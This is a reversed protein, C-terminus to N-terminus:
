VDTMGRLTFENQLAGATQNTRLMSDVLPAYWEWRCQARMHAALLSGTGLPKTLILQDGAELPQKGSVHDAPQNGLIAFGVQLQPGETTHGGVLTGQMAQFEHLSGALLDYLLQEQQSPRGLP